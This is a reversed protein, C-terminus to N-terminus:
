RPILATLCGLENGRPEKAATSFRTPLNEGITEWGYASKGRRKQACAFVAAGAILVPEKAWCGLVAASEGTHSCCPRSFASLCNCKALLYRTSGAQVSTNMEFILGHM